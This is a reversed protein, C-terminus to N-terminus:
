LELCFHAVECFGEVALSAYRTATSVLVFCFILEQSLSIASNVAQTVAIRLVTTAGCLM